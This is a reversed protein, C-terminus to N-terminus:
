IHPYWPNIKKRSIDSPTMLFYLWSVRVYLWSSFLALVGECIVLFFMFGHCGWMYGPLFYLCSVSMYLWSSFLSMVCECIDLFFIFVHYGWIYDPLFYLWSVRVYLWSSFLFIVGECIVLFFIFGHYGWIYGPLFYIWSVEQNYTLSDQHWPKIKKRTILSPTMVKKKKWTINSPIM